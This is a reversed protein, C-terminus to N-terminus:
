KNIDKEVEIVVSNFKEKTMFRSFLNNWLWTYTAPAAKFLNRGSYSKDVSNKFYGISSIVLMFIILSASLYARVIGLVLGGWKNLRDAAEMKIFRCIFGRLIVGVLYGIIALVVFVFFDLFELPVKEKATTIRQALYDSFSAYYHLSLYIATIIGLLKFFELPFNSKLAIYGIRFLIIVVFIDLWNLQKFIDM